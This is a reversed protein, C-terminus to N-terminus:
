VDRSYRSSQQEGAQQGGSPSARGKLKDWIIGQYNCAMCEDILTIIDSEQYVALKNKVGSLFAKLGTAKYSERRERKYALWEDLKSRIALSFDYGAYLDGPEAAPKGHAPTPNPNPNPNSESQIPNLGGAAADQPSDGRSEALEDFDDPPAPYKAKSDRVRQHLGWKPFLLFPKGDVEYFRVLGILALRSVADSVNKETIGQKTVFLKSKLFGPRADIRGYDDVNVILRCFVTEEFPTLQDIDASYCISEKIVRNGM